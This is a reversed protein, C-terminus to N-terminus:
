ILYIFANNTSFILKNVELGVTEGSGNGYKLEICLNYVNAFCLLKNNDQLLLKQIIYKISCYVYTPGIRVILYSRCLIPRYSGPELIKYTLRSYNYNKM